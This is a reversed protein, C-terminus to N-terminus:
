GVVTTRRIRSTGAEYPYGAQKPVVARFAYTHRGTTAHFRYRARFVGRADTRGQRLPLWHRGVRVEIGVWRRAPAPGPLRAEFHVRNGNRIPRRPRLRLHPRVRVGLHLYRELARPGPWYAVRVDRSPGAAIRARFGGDPGTLSVMAVREVAGALTVRTAVCVRAGFVGRGGEDVLRGMVTAAARHRLLRARLTTGRAIESIPCRNDIRVWGNTCARNAATTAAYDTACVRVLNPGQRFPSAATNATFGGGARGPCPRLRTATVGALHCRVVQASVPEGDVQLLFRRVGGGVDTASAAVAELGRRSGSAFLSGGLRLEPAVRDNITLALRKIRVRAARGRGCGFWRRCRLRAAFARTSAGTWEFRRSRRTPTAFRIL